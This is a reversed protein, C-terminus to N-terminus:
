SEVKLKRTVYTLFNSYLIYLSNNSISSILDLSRKFTFFYLSEYYKPFDLITLSRSTSDYNLMVPSYESPVPNIILPLALAILFKLVAANVLTVIVITFRM